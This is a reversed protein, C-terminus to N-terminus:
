FTLAFDMDGTHFTYDSLKRVTGSHLNLVDIHEVEIKFHLNVVSRSQSLKQMLLLQKTRVKEFLVLVCPMQLSEDATSFVFQSRSQVNKGM